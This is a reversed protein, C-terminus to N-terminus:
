SGDPNWLRGDRAFVMHEGLGPTVWSGHAQITDYKLGRLLSEPVRGVAKIMGSELLLDGHVIDHGDEAGTWIKAGVILTARSGAVHRDSETRSSFDLPPGAAVKTAYCKSLLEAANPPAPTRPFSSSWWLFAAAVFAATVPLFSRTTPRPRETLNLWPGQLKESM